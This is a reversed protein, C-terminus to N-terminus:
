TSFASSSQRPDFMCLTMAFSPLVDYVNILFKVIYFVLRLRMYLNSRLVVTQTSFHHSVLGFEHLGLVIEEVLDAKM